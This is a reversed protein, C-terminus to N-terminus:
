TRDSPISLYKELRELDTADLYLWALQTQAKGNQIRVLPIGGDDSRAEGSFVEYEQTSNSRIIKM